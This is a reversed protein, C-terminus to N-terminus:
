RAEPAVELEALAARAWSPLEDWTLADVRVGISQARAEDLRGARFEAAALELAYLPAPEGRQSRSRDRAQRYSRLALEFAGSAAHQRAWLLQALCELADADPGDAQARAHLEEPVLEALARDAVLPAGRQPLGLVLVLERGLAATWAPDLCGAVRLREVAALGREADGQTLELRAVNRWIRPHTPSLALAREYRERAATTQGSRALETASQEWAEVAHPRLALALDWDAVARTRRAHLMRAPASDPALELARRLAEDEARLAADVSPAAAGHQQLEDARRLAELRTSMALGHGILPFAFCAAVLVPLAHVTGAIRRTGAAATSVAGFVAFSLAAAAPNGTFPAHVFANVLLALAAIALPLREDERLASLAARAALALGLALLGGGVLGLEAFGQLWDNHAHEVETDLESCVGHRSLEIERPDRYPPFAAQFQGPGCGALPHDAVLAFTSRWVLARVGLGGLTHARGTSTATAPPVGEFDPTTGHLAGRAAMGVFPAMLAALALGALAGRGRGPHRWAAVLLAALLTHSGAIVPAAAVHALFLVLALGGLVRRAGRERV